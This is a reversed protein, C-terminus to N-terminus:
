KRRGEGSPQHRRLSTALWGVLAVQWLGLLLVDITSPGDAGFTRWLGWILSGELLGFAIWKRTTM